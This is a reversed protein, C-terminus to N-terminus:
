LRINNWSPLKRGPYNKYCIKRVAEPVSEWSTANLYDELFKKINYDPLTKDFTVGHVYKHPLKGLEILDNNVNDEIVSIDNEMYRKCGNLIRDYGSNLQFNMFCHGPTPKTSVSLLQQFKKTFRRLENDLEADSNIMSTTIITYFRTQPYNNSKSPVFTNNISFEERLKHESLNQFVLPIERKAIKYSYEIYFKVFSAQVYWYKIKDFIVVYHM